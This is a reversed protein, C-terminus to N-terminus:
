RFRILELSHPGDKQLIQLAMQFLLSPEVLGIEPDVLIRQLVRHRGGPHDLLMRSFPLDGIRSVPVRLQILQQIVIRGVNGTFWALAFHSFTGCSAGRSGVIQAASWRFGVRKHKRRGDFAPIDTPVGRRVAVIAEQAPRVIGPGCVRHTIRPM